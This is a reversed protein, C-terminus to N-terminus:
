HKTDPMEKVMKINRLEHFSSENRKLENGTKIKKYVYIYLDKRKLRNKCVGEENKIYYRKVAVLQKTSYDRRWFRIDQRVRNYTETYFVNLKRVDNEVFAPLIRKVFLM